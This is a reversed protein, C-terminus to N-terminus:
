IIHCMMNFDEEERRTRRRNPRSNSFTWTNIGSKRRLAQPISVWLSIFNLLLNWRRKFPDEM